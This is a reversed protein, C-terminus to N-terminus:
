PSFQVELYHRSALKFPREIAEEKKHDLHEILERISAEAEDLEAQESGALQPSLNFRVM